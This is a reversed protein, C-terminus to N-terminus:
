NLYYGHFIECKDKRYQGKSQSTASSIVAGTTGILWARGCTFHDAGAHADGGAIDGAEADTDDFACAMADCRREIGIIM